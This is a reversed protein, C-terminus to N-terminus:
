KLSFLAGIESSGLALLLPSPLALVSRGTLQRKPSPPATAPTM